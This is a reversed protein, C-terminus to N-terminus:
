RVPDDQVRVTLEMVWAGRINPGKKELHMKFGQVPLFFHYSDVQESENRSSRKFSRPELRAPVRGRAAEYGMTDKAYLAATLASLEGPLADPRRLHAEALDVHALELMSSKIGDKTFDYVKGPV